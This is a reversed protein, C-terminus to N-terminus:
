RFQAQVLRWANGAHEYVFLARYTMVAHKPDGVRTADLDAAIWAVSGSAAIGARLGGNLKFALKWAALQAKVKAGAFREGEESGFLLVDKRSSVSAALAKPDGITAQFVKVAGEAGADVKAPIADIAPDTAGVIDWVVADWGTAGLEFVGSVHARGLTMGCTPGGGCDGTFRIDGALWAAKGDAALGIAVGTLDSDIGGLYIHAVDLAEETASVAADALAFRPTGM